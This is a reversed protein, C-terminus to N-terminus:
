KKKYYISNKSDGWFQEAFHYFSGLNTSKQLEKNYSKCCQIIDSRSFRGYEFNKQGFFSRIRVSKVCPINM